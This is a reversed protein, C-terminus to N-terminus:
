KASFSHAEPPAEQQQAISASGTGALLLALIITKILNAKM